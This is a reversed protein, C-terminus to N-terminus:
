LCRPCRPRVTPFRRLLLPNSGRAPISGAPVPERPQRPACVRETSTTGKRRNAGPAGVWTPEVLPGVALGFVSPGRDPPKEKAPEMLSFWRFTSRDDQESLHAWRDEPPECLLIPAPWPVRRNSRAAGGPIWNPASGRCNLTAPLRPTRIPGQCSTSLIAGAEASFGRRVLSPASGESTAKAHPCHDRSASGLM